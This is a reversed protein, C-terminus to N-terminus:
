AKKLRLTPRQAHPPPAVVGDNIANEMGVWAYVHHELKKVSAELVALREKLETWEALNM